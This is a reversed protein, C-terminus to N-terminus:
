HAARPQVSFTKAVIRWGSETKLLSMYDTVLATPTETVLKAIAANGAIDVHAIRQRREGIDAPPKGTGNAAIFEASPREAYKGDRIWYLNANPQFAARFHEADATRQGAFYHELAARVAAEESPAQVPRSLPLAAVLALTPLLRPMPM